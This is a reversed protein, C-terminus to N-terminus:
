QRRCRNASITENTAVRRSRYGDTRINYGATTLGSDDLPFLVSKNQWAESLPKVVAGILMRVSPYRDRLTAVFSVMEALSRYTDAVIVQYLYVFGGGARDINEIARYLNGLTNESGHIRAIVAEDFHDWSLHWVRLGLERLRQVRRANILGSGNSMIGYDTVGFRHGHQMVAELHPYISPEGGIFIGTGLRHRGAFEVVRKVDELSHFEATKQISCYSCDHDCREGVDIHFASSFPAEVKAPEPLPAGTYIAVQEIM